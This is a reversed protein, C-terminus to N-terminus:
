ALQISNSEIQYIGPEQIPGFGDVYVFFNFKIEKGTESIIKVESVEVEPGFQKKLETDLYKRLKNRM